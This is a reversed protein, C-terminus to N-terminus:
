DLSQLGIQVLEQSAALYVTMPVSPRLFEGGFSQPFEPPFPVGGGEGVSPQSKTEGTYDRQWLAKPKM